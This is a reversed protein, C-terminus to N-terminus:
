SLGHGDRFWRRLLGCLLGQGAVQGGVADGGDELSEVFGVGGDLAGEDVGGGPLQQHGGDEGGLAGIDADVHDRRLEELAEGGGRGHGFCGLWLKFGKYPGGAEKAVLGFGNVAGGAFDDSVEAALDRLGEGFEDGDGACGAFGGVDDEADTEFLSFADDDVSVDEADGAAEAHGFAVYRM